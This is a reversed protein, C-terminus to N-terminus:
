VKGKSAFYDEAFGRGRQASTPRPETELWKSEGTISKIYEEETVLDVEGRVVARAENRRLAKTDVLMDVIEGESFNGRTLTNFDGVKGEIRKLVAFWADVGRQSTLEDQLNPGTEYELEKRKSTGAMRKADKLDEVDQMIMGRLLRDQDEPTAEYRRVMRAFVDLADWGTKRRTWRGARPEREEKWEQLARVLSATQGPAFAEFAFDIMREKVIQGADPKWTADERVDTQMSSIVDEIGEGGKYKGLFEEGTFLKWADEFAMGPDVPGLEWLNSLLAKTFGGVKDGDPMQM